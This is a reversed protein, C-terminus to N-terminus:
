PWGGPWGEPYVPLVFTGSFPIIEGTPQGDAWVELTAELSGEMLGTLLETPADYDAVALTGSTAVAWEEPGPQLNELRRFRARVWPVTAEWGGPGLVEAGSAPVDVTGVAPDPWWTELTGVYQVPASPDAPPTVWALSTALAGERLFAYGSGVVAEGGLRGGPEVSGGGSVSHRLPVELEIYFRVTSDAVQGVIRTEQGVGEVVLGAAEVSLNGQVRGWALGPGVPYEVEEIELEPSGVGVWLEWRLPELSRLRYLAVGETGLVLPRGGLEEVELVDLTRAGPELRGPLRIEAQLSRTPDVEGSIPMIMSRSEFQGIISESFF